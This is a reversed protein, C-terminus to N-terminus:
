MKKTGKGMGVGMLFAGRVVAVGVTIMYNGWEEVRLGAVEGLRGQSGLARTYAALLGFDVILMSGQVARWVTLDHAKARLLYVQLFIYGCLFAAVTDLCLITEITPSHYTPSYSHLITSPHLINLYIGSFSVLPDILTFWIRYFSPPTFSM